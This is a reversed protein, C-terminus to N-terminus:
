LIYSMAISINVSRTTNNLYVKKDILDYHVNSILFHDRVGIIIFSNFPYDISYDRAAYSILHRTHYFFDCQTERGM